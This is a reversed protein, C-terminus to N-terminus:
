DGFALIILKLCSHYLWNRIYAVNWSKLVFLACKVIKFTMTNKRFSIDIQWSIVRKIRNGNDLYLNELSIEVCKRLSNISLVQCIILANERQHDNYYNEYGYKILSSISTASNSLRPPPDDLGQSLPPPYDWNKKEARRAETHALFLRPGPGRGQVQWQITHLFNINTVKPVM